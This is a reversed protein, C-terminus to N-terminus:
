LTRRLKDYFLKALAAPKIVSTCSNINFSYVRENEDKVTCLKDGIDTIVGIVDNHIIIEGVQLQEIGTQM